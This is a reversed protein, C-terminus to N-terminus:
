VSPKAPLAYDSPSPSPPMILPGLSSDLESLFQPFIMCIINVRLQMQLPVWTGLPQTANVAASM